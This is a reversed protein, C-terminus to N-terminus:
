NRVSTRVRPEDDSQPILRWAFAGAIVCMVMALVIAPALAREVVAGAVASGVPYGAFNFSASVAFARGFWARDTRRQRLTFMTVDAPGNLFGTVAMAAFVAVVNSALLLLGIGIATGAWCCTLILRERGTTDIRGFILAAIFGSVASIGWAVGVAIPGAHLNQLVIVPMVIAQIGSGFRLTSMAIALGRLTRNRIVYMLGNRADLLLRGTTSTAIPPEPIGVTFLAALALMAGIVTLGVIPGAVQIVVGALPPGILQAIVFSNADVANVRPWLHQPVLVPLLTRVGSNSLPNTLAAIAVIAVLAWPPLADLYALVAIVVMTGGGILYDLIVLRARGHRDLLAGALPSAIVAPALSAFTVIGTLVPSGYHGLSFLIVAVSVMSSALRAITMAFVIRAISPIAFLARYSRDLGDAARAQSPSTV